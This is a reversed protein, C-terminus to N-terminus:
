SARDSSSKPPEEQQNNSIQRFRSNSATDKHESAAEDNLFVDGEDPGDQLTETEDEKQYSTNDESSTSSLPEKGDTSSDSSLILRVSEAKELEVELWRILMIDDTFVMYCACLYVSMALLSTTSWLQTILYLQSMSNGAFTIKYVSFARSAIAKSIYNWRPSSRPSNRLALRINALFAICSFSAFVVIPILLGDQVFENAALYWHLFQVVIHHVVTSSQMNDLVLLAAMDYAAYMTSIYPVLPWAYTTGVIGDVVLLLSPVAFIGLTAGKCANVSRYMRGPYADCWEPLARAGVDFLVVAASTCLLYSALYM